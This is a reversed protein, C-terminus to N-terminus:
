GAVTSVRVGGSSKFTLSDLTPQLGAPIAACTHTAAHLDDSGAASLHVKLRRCDSTLIHLTEAGAGQMALQDFELLNAPGARDHRIPSVSSVSRVVDEPFVYPHKEGFGIETVQKDWKDLRERLPRVGGTKFRTPALLTPTLSVRQLSVMPLLADDLLKLV